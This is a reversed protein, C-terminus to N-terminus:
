IMMILSFIIIGIAIGTFIICILNVWRRFNKMRTLNLLAFMSFVFLPLSILSSILVVKDYYSESYMYICPITLWAYTLIIMLFAFILSVLYKQRSLQLIAGTSKKSEWGWILYELPFLLLCSILLGLFSIASSIIFFMKRDKYAYKRLQISIDKLSDGHINSKKIEKKNLCYVEGYYPTIHHLVVVTAGQDALKEAITILNDDGQLLVFDNKGANCNGNPILDMANVMNFQKYFDKNVSIKESTISSYYLTPKEIFSVICGVISCLFMVLFILILMRNRKTM